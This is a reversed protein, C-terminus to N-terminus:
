SVIWNSTESCSVVIKGDKIYKFIEDILGNLFKDKYLLM